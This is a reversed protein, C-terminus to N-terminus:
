DGRAQAITEKKARWDRKDRAIMEFHELRSVQVASEVYCTDFNKEAWKLAFGLSDPGFDIWTHERTFVNFCKAITFNKEGGSRSAPYWYEVVFWEIPDM